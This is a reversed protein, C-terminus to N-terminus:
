PAKAAALARERQREAEARHRPVEAAAADLDDLHFAKEAQEAAAQAALATPHDRGAALGAAFAARAAQHAEDGLAARRLQIAAAARAAAPDCRDVAPPPPPEFRPGEPLDTPLRLRQVLWRGGVVVVAFVLLAAVVAGQALLAEAPM